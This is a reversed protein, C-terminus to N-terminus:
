GSERSPRFCARDVDFGLVFSPALNVRDFLPQRSSRLRRPAITVGNVSREATLHYCNGRHSSEGAARPSLTFLCILIRAKGPPDMRREASRAATKQRTRRTGQRASAPITALTLMELWRM